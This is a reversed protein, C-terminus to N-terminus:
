VSDGVEACLKDLDASTSRRRDIVRACLSTCKWKTCQASPANPPRASRTSRIGAELLYRENQFYIEWFDHYEEKQVFAVMESSRGELEHISMNMFTRYQGMVEKKGQMMRREKELSDKDPVCDGFTM